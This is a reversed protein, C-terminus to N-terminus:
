SPNSNAGVFMGISIRITSFPFHPLTKTLRRFITCGDAKTKSRRSLVEFMWYEIPAGEERVWPFMSCRVDFASCRIFTGRPWFRRTGGVRVRRVGLRQRARPFVNRNEDCIFFCRFHWCHRFVSRCCCPFGFALAIVFWVIGRRTQQDFSASQFLALFIVFM